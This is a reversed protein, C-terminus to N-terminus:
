AEVIEPQEVTNVLIVIPEDKTDFVVRVELDDFLQSCPPNVAYRQFSLRQLGDEVVQM